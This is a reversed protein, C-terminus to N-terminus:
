RPRHCIRCRGTRSRRRRGAVGREEIGTVRVSQARQQSVVYPEIQGRLRVPDAGGVDPDVEGDVTPILLM